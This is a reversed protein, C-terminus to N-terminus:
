FMDYNSHLFELRKLSGVGGYDLTCVERWKFRVM